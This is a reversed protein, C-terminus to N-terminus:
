PNKVPEQRLTWPGPCGAPWGVVVPGARVGLHGANASTM